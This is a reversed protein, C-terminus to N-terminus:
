NSEEISIISDLLVCGSRVLVWICDYFIDGRTLCAIARFIFEFTHHFRFNTRNKRENNYTDENDCFLSSILIYM